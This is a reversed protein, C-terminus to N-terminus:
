EDAADSTYLLCVNFDLVSLVKVLLVAWAVLFVTLCGGKRRKALEGRKM